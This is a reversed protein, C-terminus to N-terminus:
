RGHIRNQAAELGETALLEAAEAALPLTFALEERETKSFPRLVYDAPDQRGPPRGIGVRIRLYDKTGLSKTTSRLGNHGNESGGRKLRVHGSELDLEDHIVIINSTPISFFQALAAIPGGSLNMSTRPKAIILQRRTGQGSVLQTQVIESNSKKHVSWTAGPSLREALEAAALHGVNHRTLEYKPGPNGLGVVLVPGLSTAETNPTRHAHM